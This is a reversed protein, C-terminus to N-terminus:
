LDGWIKRMEWCREFQRYKNVITQVVNHQVISEVVTDTITDHFDIHRDHVWVNPFLTHNCMLLSVHDGVNIEEECVACYVSGTGSIGLLISNYGRFVKVGDITVFAERM